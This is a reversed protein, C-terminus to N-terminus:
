AREGPQEPETNVLRESAVPRLGLLFPMRILVHHHMIAGPRVVPMLVLLFESSALLQSSGSSCVAISPQQQQGAGGPLANTAASGLFLLYCKRSITM